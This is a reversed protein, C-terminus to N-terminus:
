GTSAARLSYPVFSSNGQTQLKAVIRPALCETLSHDVIDGRPSTSGRASNATAAVRKGADMAQHPATPRQREERHEHDADRVVQSAAALGVTVAEALQVGGPAVM